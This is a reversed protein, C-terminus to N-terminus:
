LRWEESQVQEVTQVVEETVLNFMRDKSDLIDRSIYRSIEERMTEPAILPNELINVVEKENEIMSEAFSVFVFMTKFIHTIPDGLESHQNKGDIEKTKQNM